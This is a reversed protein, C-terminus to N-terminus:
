VLRARASIAALDDDDLLFWEGRVRRGDFMDHLFSEEARMNPTFYCCAVMIEFPSSCQHQAMRQLPNKALGIKYFRDEGTEVYCVYIFGGLSQASQECQEAASEVSVARQKGVRVQDSKNRPWEHHAARVRLQSDSVGHKEAVASISMLGESYDLEIREWDIDNRRGM